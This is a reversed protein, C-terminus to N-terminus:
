RNRDPREGIDHLSDHRWEAQGHHHRDRLRADHDICPQHDRDWAEHDHHNRRRGNTTTDNPDYAVVESPETSKNCSSAILAAVLLASGWLISKKM